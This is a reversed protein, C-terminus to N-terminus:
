FRLVMCKDMPFFGMFSGELRLSCSAKEKWLIMKGNVMISIEMISHLYELDVNKFGEVVM